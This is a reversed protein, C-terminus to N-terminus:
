WKRQEGIRGQKESSRSYIEEQFVNNLFEISFTKIM